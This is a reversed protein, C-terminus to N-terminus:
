FLIKAATITDLVLSVAMVTSAWVLWIVYIRNFTSAPQAKLAIRGDRKWIMALAFSWFVLHIVTGIETRSLEPFAAKTAILGVINVVLAAVIWRAGYKWPAFVVGIAFSIAM